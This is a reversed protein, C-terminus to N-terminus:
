SIGAANFIPSAYDRLLNEIETDRIIGRGGSQASVPVPSQANILTASLLGLSLRKMWSRYSMAISM